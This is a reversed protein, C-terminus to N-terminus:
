KRYEYQKVMWRVWRVDETESARFAARLVEVLAVFTAAAMPIAITITMADLDAQLKIREHRSMKHDRIDTYLPLVKLNLHLM